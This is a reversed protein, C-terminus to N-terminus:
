RPRCFADSPLPPLDRVARYGNVYNEWDSCKELYILERELKVAFRTDAKKESAKERDREGVGVGSALAISFSILCLSTFVWTRNGAGRGTSWLFFLMGGASVTVPLLAAMVTADPGTQGALWGTVGGLIASSLVGLAAALVTPPPGARTGIAPSSGAM